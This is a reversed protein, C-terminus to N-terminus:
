LTGNEINQLAHENGGDFVKMWLEEFKKSTPNNEVIEQNYKEAERNYEAVNIGNDPHSNNNQSSTDNSAFSPPPTATREEERSNVIENDDYFTTPIAAHKYNEGGDGGIFNFSDCDLEALNVPLPRHQLAAFSPYYIKLAEKGIEKLLPDTIDYAEPSPTTQEEGVAGLMLTMKENEESGDLLAIFNQESKSMKKTPNKLDMIKAGFRPITFQPVKLLDKQDYFNNFKQAINTALELHQKQDQGVIVLDADYLFIDAAMLVPYSLLALNGTESSKKKEKYQIMNNLESVTTFPSNEEKLGCAYLLAAIEQGQRQYNIDKRLVTLAHLDAIMIIIEYDDQIKLIPHIAGFYNGLTLTGTTQIGTFFRPKSQTKEYAEKAIKVELFYEKESLESSCYYAAPLTALFSIIKITTALMINYKKITIVRLDNKTWSWVEKETRLTEQLCMGLVLRM